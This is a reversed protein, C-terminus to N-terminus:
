AVMPQSLQAELNMTGKFATPRLQSSRLKGQRGIMSLYIRQITTIMLLPTHTPNLLLLVVMP